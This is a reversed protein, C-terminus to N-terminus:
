TLLGGVLGIFQTIITARRRGITITKGGLVSGVAMGLVGCTTIITNYFKTEGDDWGFKAVFIPTTQTIATFVMTTQLVGVGLASAYAYLFWMNPKLPEKESKGTPPTKDEM